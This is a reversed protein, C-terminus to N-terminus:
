CARSLRSVEDLARSMALDAEGAAESASAAAAAAGAARREAEQTALRQRELEARTQAHLRREEALQAARQQHEDREKQVLRRKEDLADAARAPTGATLKFREEPPITSAALAFPSSAVKRVVKKTEPSTPETPAAYMAQKSTTKAVMVSAVAAAGFAKAAASQEGAKQTSKPHPQLQPKGAGPRQEASSRPARVTTTPSAADDFHRELAMPELGLGASEEESAHNSKKTLPQSSSAGPTASSGRRETRNRPGSMNLVHQPLM